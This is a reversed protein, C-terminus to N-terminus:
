EAVAELEDAAGDDTSPQSESDDTTEADDTRFPLPSPAPSNGLLTQWAIDLDSAAAVPFDPLNVLARDLRDIVEDIDGDESDLNALTVTAADLDAAALGYNAQFLFLRARSMLEAARTIELQRAATANTEDLDTGLTAALEDLGDLRTTQTEILGDLEGITEDGEDLRNAVDSQAAAIQTLRTDLEGVVAAFDASSTDLQDIRGEVTDLEAATTEVPQIFRENLTPWLLYAGVGVVALVALSLLRAAWRFVRRKPRAAVEPLDNSRESQGRDDHDNDDHDDLEDDDYNDEFEDDFARDDDDEDFYEEDLDGRIPTPASHSAM